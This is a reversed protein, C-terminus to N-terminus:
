FFRLFFLQHITFSKWIIHLESFCLSILISSSSIILLICNQQYIVHFSSMINDKPNLWMLPMPSMKKIKHLSSHSSLLSHSFFQLCCLYCNKLSKVTFSFLSILSYRRPPCKDKQRNFYKAQTHTYSFVAILIIFLPCVALSSVKYSDFIPIGFVERRIHSM